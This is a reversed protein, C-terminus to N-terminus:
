RGHHHAIEADTLRLFRAANNYLIDRKQAETLFPAELIADIGEEILGPWVMQDSGFMIREQFGARVLTELLDYYEARTLAM